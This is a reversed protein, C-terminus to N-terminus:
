QAQQAQQSQQQQQQQSQAETRMFEEHYSEIPQKMLSSLDLGPVLGPVRANHTNLVQPNHAAHTLTPAPAVQQLKAEDTIPPPKVEGKGAPLHATYDDRGKEEEGGSPYDDGDDDDWSGGYGGYGGGGWGGDGREGGRESGSSCGRADDSGGGGGPRAPDSAPDMDAEAEEREAKADADRSAVLAMMDLGPVTSPKPPPPAVRAM